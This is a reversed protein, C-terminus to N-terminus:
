AGNPKEGAVQLAVGTLAAATLAFTWEFLSSPDAAIRAAHVLPIWSGFMLAVSLASWRTAIGTVCALGALVNVGGTLWPWYPALPIWDPILSAILDRNTLHVIAFWILMLGFVIRLAAIPALKGRVLAAGAFAACEAVPVWGTMDHPTAFASVAALACILAWLAAMLASAATVGPGAIMLLSAAVLVIGTARVVLPSAIAEPFLHLGPLPAGRAAEFAGLAAISFAFVLVGATLVRAQKPNQYAM